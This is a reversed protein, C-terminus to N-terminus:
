FEYDQLSVLCEKAKALRGFLCHKLIANIKVKADNDIPSLRLSALLSLLPASSESLGKRALMYELGLCLSALVAGKSHILSVGTKELERLRNISVKDVEICCSHISATTRHLDQILGLRQYEHVSLNSFGNASQQHYYRSLWIDYATDPLIKCMSELEPLWTSSVFDMFDQHGTAYFANGNVHRSIDPGLRNSGKYSSGLVWFKESKEVLEKVSSMWDPSVPTMDTEHLLTTNCATSYRISRFFQENPGSKMGLPPLQEFQQEFCEQRLYIDKEEDIGLYLVSIDSFLREISLVKIAKAIEYDLAPSIVRPLTLMLSVASEKGNDEDFYSWWIFFLCNLSWIDKETLPILVRELNHGFLAV